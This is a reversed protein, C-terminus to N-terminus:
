ITATQVLYNTAAQVLYNVHLGISCRCARKAPLLSLRGSEWICVPLECVNVCLLKLCASSTAAPSGVKIVLDSKQKALDPREHKVVTDLLQAELGTMKVAFNIIMAKTSIEPAYNPNPLKTTLYLRFETSVDVEKDGMKVVLQNNRRFLADGSCFQPCPGRSVDVTILMATIAAMCVTAAAWRLSFCCISQIPAWAALHTCCGQM